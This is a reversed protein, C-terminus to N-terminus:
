PPEIWWVNKRYDGHAFTGAYVYGDTSVPNTVPDHGVPYQCTLDDHEPNVADCTRVEPHTQEDPMPTEEDTPVPHAKQHIAHADALSWFMPTDLGHDDRLHRVLQGWGGPEPDTHTHTHQTM